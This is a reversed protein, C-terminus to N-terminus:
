CKITVNDNDNLYINFSIALQYSGQYLLIYYDEPIPTALLEEHCVLVDRKSIDIVVHPTYEEKHLPCEFCTVPPKASPMCCKTVEAVSSELHILLQRRQQLLIPLMDSPHQHSRQITIYCNISSTSQCLQLQFQQWRADNFGFYGVGRRISYLSILQQLMYIYIYIYMYMYIYNCPYVCSIYTSIYNAIYSAIM